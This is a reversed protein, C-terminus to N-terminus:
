ASSPMRSVSSHSSNLRTSKRDLEPEIAALKAEMATIQAKLAAPRAKLEDLEAQLKAAEDGSAKKIAGALKGIAPGSEKAIRNQEARQAEMQTLLSRKQEDLSLLRDVDAAIRKKACGDRFKQPNERLQKLDIM